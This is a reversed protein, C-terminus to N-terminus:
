AVRRQSAAVVFPPPHPVREARDQVALGVRLEPVIGSELGRFANLFTTQVADEADERNRLQVVCYAFIQRGYREYLDRTAEAPQRATDVTQGVARGISPVTAM